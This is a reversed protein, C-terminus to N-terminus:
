GSACEVVLEPRQSVPGEKTSYGAGDYASSTIALGVPGDGRVLSTVELEYWASKTVGDLRAFAQADTAPATAWTVTQENWGTDALPRFEGGRPSADVNYLRLHAAAIVCGGTGAVNFALLAKRVPSNDAYTKTKTGYATTPTDASLYTDKAPQFKLVTGQQKTTATADASPTSTNGNGDTAVVRYTHATSPALGRDAYTAKWGRVTALEAGDRFITYSNVGVDDASPQWSLTVQSTSVATATLGGPPTPPGAGDAAFQYTAIDFTEGAANTPAVTVRTRDVKVLLFHHVQDTRTPVQAAGCAAGTSTSGKWGIGYADTESCGSSGISALSAGGGGTVYSVLGGPSPKLNRQYLHAHGNFAIDVGNRSLLGELSAAGQLFANSTQSSQDSYLPYHFFAFKLPTSAHAALDAELWQYEASTPTWHTDYDNKYQTAEGVNGADWATQLVYFRAGGADFAYWASAYDKPRTGNVCCYTDLQYRGGSTAVARPQPWNVLFTSNPTHNGVAPFYPLSKGPGAWFRPGFVGSVSSGTRYLDGYNSQSGSPNAVDGTGVAFRADTKALRALLAEQDPNASGSNAQGWDGFVAFSFPEAPREGLQGRFTPSPDSGLLDTRRSTGLYVRYCYTVDQVLDPVTARWQYQAVSKVTIRTRTAAVTRDDCPRVGGPTGITVSATVASTRTTAWNISVSGGVLDTLYPYRTLSSAPAGLAPAPVLAAGAVLLVALVLPVPRRARTALDHAVVTM